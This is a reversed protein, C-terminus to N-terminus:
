GAQAQTEEEAPHSLIIIQGRAIFLGHSLTYPTHPCLVPCINFAWPDENVPFHPPIRTIPWGMGQLPAGPHWLSQAQGLGRPLQAELDPGQEGGWGDWRSAGRSAARHEPAGPSMSSLSPM